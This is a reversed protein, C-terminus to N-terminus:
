NSFTLTANNLVTNQTRFYVCYDERWNM